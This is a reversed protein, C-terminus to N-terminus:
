AARKKLQENVVALDANNAQGTSEFKISANIWRQEEPSGKTASKVLSEMVTLVDKRSPGKPTDGGAAPTSVSKQLVDGPKATVAAAPKAAPAQGFADIKAALGDISAMSKEMVKIMMNDRQASAAISKQLAELSEDVHAGLLNVVETLVSSVDLAKKLEDSAKAKITDAASKALTATAVTTEKPKEEPPKTGELKQLSKLLDEETVTTTDTAAANPKQEGSM